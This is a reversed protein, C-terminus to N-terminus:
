ELTSRLMWAAKEHEQMRRILLDTTAQDKGEEAAPFVEHANRSVAEHDKVLSSIMEEYPLTGEQEELSTKKLFKEMGAEVPFGLARIREALVDVALALEKYQTEFMEHLSHFQPGRVNWHFNQTKVYLTYTDALLSSLGEAVEHRADESVGYNINKEEMNKKM